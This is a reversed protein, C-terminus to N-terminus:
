RSTVVTWDAPTDGKKPPTCFGSVAPRHNVPNTESERLQAVQKQFWAERLKEADEVFKFKEMDKQARLDARWVVDDQTSLWGPEVQDMRALLVAIAEPTTPWDDERM